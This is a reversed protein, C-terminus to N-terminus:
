LNYERKMDITCTLNRGAPGAQCFTKGDIIPIDPPERQDPIRNAAYALSAPQKAQMVNAFLM